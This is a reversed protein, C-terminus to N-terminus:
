PKKLLDRTEDTLQCIGRPACGHKLLWKVLVSKAQALEERLGHIIQQCELRHSVETALQSELKDIKEYAQGITFAAEADDHPNSM